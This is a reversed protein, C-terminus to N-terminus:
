SKRHFSAVLTRLEALRLLWAAGVFALAGGGGALALRALDSALGMAPVIVALVALLLWSVGAMVLCAAATRALTSRLNM